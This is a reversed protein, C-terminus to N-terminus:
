IKSLTIPMQFDATQIIFQISGPQTPFDLVFLKGAGVFIVLFGYPFFFKKKFICSLFRGGHYLPSQQLITTGLLGLKSLLEWRRFLPPTNVWIIAYDSYLPLKDRVTRVNSVHCELDFFQAVPYLDPLTWNKEIANKKHNKFSRSSFEKLAVTVNRVWDGCGDVARRFIPWAHTRGYRERERSLYM